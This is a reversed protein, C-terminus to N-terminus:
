FNLFTAGAVAVEPNVITVLVSCGFFAGTGPQAVFTITNPVAGVQQEIKYYSSKMGNTGFAEANYTAGSYGSIRLNTIAGATTMTVDRDDAVTSTSQMEVFVTGSFNNPFTYVSIGVNTMQGGLSNQESFEPQTGFPLAATCGVNGIIMDTLITKGLAAYLKPKGLRVTYEVYVHGLLTGAPYATASVDSTAMQFTGIDYSKIDEGQPVAGSRVYEMDHGANKAPDCEIGFHIPDCVRTEIAGQYEVMERFSQFKPSGANYNCAVVVSGMAGTTTATSIVPQYSFVLDHFEYEEFNSAIQSLWAFVGSLGPNISYSTNSFDAPAAPSVVRTVYERRSVVIRGTEDGFSKFNSRQLKSDTFLSNTAPENSYAGRGYAGRGYAGRGRKPGVTLKHMARDVKAQVEREIVTAPNEGRLISGGARLAAKGASKGQKRLFKKLKKNIPFTLVAIGFGGNHARRM